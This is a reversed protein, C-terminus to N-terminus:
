PPDAVYSPLTLPATHAFLRLSAGSVIPSHCSWELDVKEVLDGDLDVQVLGLLVLRGLKPVPQLM